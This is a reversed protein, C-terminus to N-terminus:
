AFPKCRFNGKCGGCEVEVDIDGDIDGHIARMNNSDHKAHKTTDHKTTNHLHQIEDCTMSWCRSGCRPGPVDIVTENRSSLYKVIHSPLWAKQYKRLENKDFCLYNEPFFNDGYFTELYDQQKPNKAFDKMHEVKVCFNKPPQMFESMKLENPKFVQEYKPDDCVHVGRLLKTCNQTNSPLPPSGLDSTDNAHARISPPRYDFKEFKEWAQLQGRNCVVRRGEDTCYKDYKGNQGGKLAMKGDDLMEVKFKEWQGIAARNCVVGKEGEDACWKNDKNALAYYDGGLAKLTWSEPETASCAISNGRAACWKGHRGGKLEFSETM